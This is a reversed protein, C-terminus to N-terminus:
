ADRRLVRTDCVCGRVSLFVMVIAESLSPRATPWFDSFAATGAGIRAACWKNGGGM